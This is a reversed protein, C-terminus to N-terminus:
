LCKEMEVWFGDYTCSNIPLGPQYFRSEQSITDFKQVWDLSKLYVGDPLKLHNKNRNSEIDIFVVETARIDFPDRRLDRVLIAVLEGVRVGDVISMGKDPSYIKECLHSKCVSLDNKDDIVYLKEAAFFLPRSEPLNLRTFVRGDSDSILTRQVLHDVKNELISYASRSTSRDLVMFGALTGDHTPITQVSDGSLQDVVVFTGGGREAEQVGAIKGGWGVSPSRMRPINTISEVQTWPKFSRTFEVDAARVTTQRRVLLTNSNLWKLGSVKESALVRRLEQDVVFANVGLVPGKEKGCQLLIAFEGHSSTAISSIEKFFLENVDMSCDEAFANSLVGALAVFVIVFRNIL